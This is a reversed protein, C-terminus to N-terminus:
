NFTAGHSQVPSENTSTTYTLPQEDRKSCTESSEYISVDLSSSNCFICRGGNYVHNM